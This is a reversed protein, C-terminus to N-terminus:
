QLYLYKIVEAELRDPQTVVLPIHEANKLLAELSNLAFTPTGFFVISL